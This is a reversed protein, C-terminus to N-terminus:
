MRTITQAIGDIIDRKAEYMTAESFIVLLVNNDDGLNLAYGILQIETDLDEEILVATGIGEQAPLGGLTTPDASEVELDRFHLEDKLEDIADQLTDDAGSGGIVVTTSAYTDDATVIDEHETIEWDEPVQVKVSYTDAKLWQTGELAEPTEDDQQVVEGQDDPQDQQPDDQDQQEVEATEEQEEAPDDDCGVAFLALTFCAIVVWTLRKM